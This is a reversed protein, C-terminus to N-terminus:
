GILWDVREYIRAVPMAVGISQFTLTAGVDQTETLLWGGKGDARHHEIRIKDRHILVYEGFTPIDRYLESRGGRDYNATTPSLVEIILVPNTISDRDRSDYEIQGCVVMVDPYTYLGNKKVYLRQDSGFAECSRGRLAVNLEANINATIRNHNPSAGAMQFIEGAYYECKEVAAREMELYQDPTFTKSPKLAIPVPHEKELPEVDQHSVVFHRPSRTV